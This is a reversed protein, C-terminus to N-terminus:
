IMISKDESSTMWKPPISICSEYPPPEDEVTEQNRNSAATTTSSNSLEVVETQNAQEHNQEEAQLCNFRLKRRWILIVVIVLAIIIAILALVGFVIGVITGTSM